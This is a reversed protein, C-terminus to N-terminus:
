VCRPSRRATAGPGSGTACGTPATVFNTAWSVYQQVPPKDWGNLKTLRAVDANTINPNQKLMDLPNPGMMMLLFMVMSVVILAPIAELLRRLALSTMQGGVM